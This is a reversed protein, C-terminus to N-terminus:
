LKLTLIYLKIFNLFYHIIGIEWLLQEMFTLTLSLIFSNTTISKTKYMHYIKTKSILYIVHFIDSIKKKLFKM